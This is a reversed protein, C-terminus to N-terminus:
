TLLCKNGSSPPHVSILTLEEVLEACKHSPMSGGTHSLIHELLTPDLTAIELAATEDVTLVLPKNSMETGRMQRKVGHHALAAMLHQGDDRAVFSLWAELRQEDM